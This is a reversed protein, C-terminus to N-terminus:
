RQGFKHKVMKIYSRKIKGRVRWGFLNIEKCQINAVFNSKYTTQIIFNVINLETMLFNELTEASLPAKRLSGTQSSM